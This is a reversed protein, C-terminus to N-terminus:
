RPGVIKWIPNVASPSLYASSALSAGNLFWAYLENTNIQQWILDPRQDGNYDGVTRIRWVPNVAGSGLPGVATRVVGNLYWVSLAGTTDDQWVLDPHGDNDIDAAGAVRATTAGLTVISQDPAHVYDGLFAGNPGGYGASGNSPAMFWVYVQGTTFNEWVIDANADGNLDATAVVRWPTNPGIPVAQEGTKALGNMKYLTVAGSQQHQLLLDAQGDGTFDSTGVIQWAPDIQTPSMWAGGTYTTGNMYWVYLQGSTSEYVLDAHGDANFDHGLLPSTEAGITWGMDTFMGLTIPGPNHIAEAGSLAPTMLSNPNGAPFASEDLHSYSSGPTWTAPTYLRATVGGNGAVGHQGNWYVGPGHPSGANYAHTLQSALTTSPNEFGLLPAGTETVVFRDFAIPYGGVGIAGTGGSVAASGLFGLGHALEHLVVSEFDYQGAGPAGGTGFYWSPFASNFSALIDFQGGYLDSGHLRDALADVYYTSAQPVGSFDRWLYQAGASGLVNADLTTFEARVNIPVPSSILPSWIDVAAQFAAQASPFSDFGVYTVNITAGTVVRSRLVTAPPPAPPPVYTFANGPAAVLTCLEIVHSRAAARARPSSPAIAIAAGLVVIAVLCRRFKSPLTPLVTM